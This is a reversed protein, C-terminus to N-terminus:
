IEPAPSNGAAGLRLEARFVAEGGEQRRGEYAVAASLRPMDPLASLPIPATLLDVTEGIKLERLYNIDLRMQDAKELLEPETLDQIWQIYRTNNVHGNYDIDSYRVRREGAENLRDQAGLAGGGGPLADVGENLPLAEM